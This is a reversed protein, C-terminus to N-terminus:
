HPRAGVSMQFVETVGGGDILLNDLNIETKDMQPFSLRAM